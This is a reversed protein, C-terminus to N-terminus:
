IVFVKPESLKLLLVIIIIGHGHISFVVIVYAYIKTIKLDYIRKQKRRSM